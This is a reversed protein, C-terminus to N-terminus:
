VTDGVTWSNSMSHVLVVTYKVLVVQILHVSETSSLVNYEM